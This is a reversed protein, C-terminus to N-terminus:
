SKFYRFTKYGTEDTFLAKAPITRVRGDEDKRRQIWEENSFDDYNTDDFLELPLWSSQHGKENFNIDEMALLEELNYSSYEKKKRDIAVKRPVRGPIPDYPEM